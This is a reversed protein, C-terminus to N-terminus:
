RAWRGPAPLIGVGSFAPKFFEHDEIAIPLPGKFSFRADSCGKCKPLIIPSWILVEHASAHSPMRHIVVYVGAKPVESGTRLNTEDFDSIEM